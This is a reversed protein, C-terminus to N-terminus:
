TIMSSSDRQTEEAIKFLAANFVSNIRLTTRDVYNTSWRQWTRVRSLILALSEEVPPDLAIPIASNWFLEVCAADYKKKTDLIFEIHKECDVLDASIVHFTRSVKHIKDINTRIETSM